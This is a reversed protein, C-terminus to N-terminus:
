AYADPGNGGNMDYLMAIMLVLLALFLVIKM